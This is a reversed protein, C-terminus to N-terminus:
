RLVPIILEEGVIIRNADALGNIQVIAQVSTNYLLAIHSLYDDESVVHVKFNEFIRTGRNLLQSYELYALPYNGSEAYAEAISIKESAEPNDVFLPGEEQISDIAQQYLFASEEYDRMLGLAYAISIQAEYRLLTPEPSDEALEMARRFLAIAQEYAGVSLAENGSQIYADYLTQRTAGRAYESDEAYIFELDAVVLDWNELSFNNQATLYRNALGFQLQIEEDDPKLELAKGFYFEAIEQAALSSSQETLAEVGASIYREVLKERVTERATDWEQLVQRDTPRLTLAKQFFTSASELGDVTEGSTAIEHAAAKIYSNFLQEEILEIEYKPDIIRINEFALIADGWRQEEFATTGDDMWEALIKEREVDEILLSVDKYDPLDEELSELLSLATDVNGADLEGVADAYRQDLSILNGAEEMFLQLDPLEPDEEAIEEFLVLAEEARGAQLLNQGNRFKVSLEIAAIESQVASRTRDLQGTLFRSYQRVGFFMLSVIAIAMAARLGLRLFQERRLMQNETIEDADIRARLQMEQRLTHLDHALPYKQILEELQKLGSEWDAGQFATLTRNFQPDQDYSAIEATM